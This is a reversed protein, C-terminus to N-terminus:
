FDWESKDVSYSGCLWSIIQQKEELQDAAKEKTKTLIRHRKLAFDIAARLCAPDKNIQSFPIYDEAGDEIINLAWEHDDPGTAIVPAAPLIDEVDRILLNSDESEFGTIDLLVIDVDSKHCNIYSLAKFPSSFHMFQFPTKMIGRLHRRITSANRMDSEILIINLTNIM